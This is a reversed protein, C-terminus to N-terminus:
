KIIINRFNTSISKFKLKIRNSGYTYLIYFLFIVFILASTITIGIIFEFILIFILSIIALQFITTIFGLKFFLNFSIPRKHQEALNLVLINDGLPTLNDGWNSGIALSYYYYNRYLSPNNKSIAGIIPILVKTIPINDVSASLGASFWLIIIIQFVVNVSLMNGLYIGIIELVGLIELAGTIIFIGILYFILEFDIKQILEKGNLGSIIILILAIVLAIADLSLIIPPILIFLLILISLSIITQYMLKKNQVLNWVDFEMLIPIGEKPILLDDKYLFIFFALTFGLIILSILGVNLFFNIFSIEAYNAILINPISSIIFFSAGLNVIVAQTLIYPSPNINLIRSVTITLPICIIVALLNNLIAAIFVIILSSIILLYIPHGKSLKILKIAIFQFLGAENAITVIIMMSIILILSHFNNYSDEKTGFTLDIIIAFDYHEIFTLVFFTITAGILASIARSM